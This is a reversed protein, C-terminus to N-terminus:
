LAWLKLFNFKECCTGNLFLLLKLQSCSVSLNEWEPGESQRVLKSFFLVVTWVCLMWGLDGHKLAHYLVIFLKIVHDLVLDNSYFDNFFFRFFLFVDSVFFYVSVHFWSGASFCTTIASGAGQVFDHLLSETVGGEQPAARSKECLAGWFPFFACCFAFTFIYM